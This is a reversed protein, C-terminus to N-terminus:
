PFWVRFEDLYPALEEATLLYAVYRFTLRAKQYTPAWVELRASGRGAWVHVRVDSSQPRKHLLTLPRQRRLVVWTNGEDALDALANRLGTSTAGEALPLEVALYLEAEDM